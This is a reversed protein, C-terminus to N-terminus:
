KEIKNFMDTFHGNSEDALESEAVGNGNRRKIPPSDQTDKKQSNIYLDRPNAKIDGVLNTDAKTERRLSEFKPRLTVIALRKQKQM